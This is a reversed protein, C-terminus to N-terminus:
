VVTPEKRKVYSYFPYPLPHPSERTVTWVNRQLTCTQKNLGELSIAISSSMLSMELKALMLERIVLSRRGKIPRLRPKHSPQQSCGTSSSSHEKFASHQLYYCIILDAAAM